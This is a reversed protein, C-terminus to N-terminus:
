CPSIIDMRTGRDPSFLFVNKRGIPDSIHKTAKDAYALNANCYFVLSFLGISLARKVSIKM